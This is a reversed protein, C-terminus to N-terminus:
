ASAPGHAPESSAKASAVGEICAAAVFISIGCFVLDKMLFAVSDTMSPSGGASTAWANPLFPIITVTAIFSFRSGISGLIGFKKNWFGALLLAGFSWESVGLFRTAGRISFVPYM